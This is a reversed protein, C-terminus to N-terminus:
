PVLIKEVNSKKIDTLFKRIGIMAEVHPAILKETIMMRNFYVQKLQQDKTKEYQTHADKFIKELRRGRFEPDYWPPTPTSM